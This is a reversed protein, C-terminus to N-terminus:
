GDLSREYNFVCASMHEMFVRRAEMLSGRILDDDGSFAM